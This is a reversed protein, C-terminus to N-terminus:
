ERRVANPKTYDNYMVAQSHLCYKEIRMYKFIRVCVTIVLTAKPKRRRFKKINQPLYIRGVCVYM